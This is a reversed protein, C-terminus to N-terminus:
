KMLHQVHYELLTLGDRSLTELVSYMMILTGLNHILVYSGFMM